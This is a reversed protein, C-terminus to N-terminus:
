ILLSFGFANPVSQLKDYVSFTRDKTQVSKSFDCSSSLFSTESVSLLPNLAANKAQEM